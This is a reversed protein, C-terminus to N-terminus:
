FIIKLKKPQRLKHNVGYCIEKGLVSAPLFRLNFKKALFILFKNGVEACLVFFLKVMMM